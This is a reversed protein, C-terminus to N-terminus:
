GPWRAVPYADTPVVVSSAAKDHWTQKEKDWLMWLYGLFFITSIFYAIVSRGLARMYGIPGGTNFDIVRINTARKGITQGSPSGEFYTFYGLTTAVSLAELVFRVWRPEVPRIGFLLTTVIGMLILDILLAPFRIWFGARPGSPGVRAAETPPGGGTAPSSPPWQEPQQGV